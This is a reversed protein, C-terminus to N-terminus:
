IRVAMQRHQKQSNAELRGKGARHYNTIITEAIIQITATNKKKEERIKPVPMGSITSYSINTCLKRIENFRAKGSKTRILEELEKEYKHVLLRSSRICICSLIQKIYTLFGIHFVPEALDAHGFHGPCDNSNLGCFDCNFHLDTVGLRPDVLGGKKPEMNDYSEPLNIGHEDKNVSSNFKIEDNGFIAFQISNIHNIKDNYSYSQSSM